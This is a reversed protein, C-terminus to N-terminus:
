IRKQSRSRIAIAVSNMVLLMVMLVLIAGAAAETFEPNPRTTWDFIQLPLVMYRDELNTPLFNVLGVAGVVILPATEGIARSLALIVGTLMGPLANPLVVRWITQWRTAGLALSGERFSPPVAKLAEQSVLIVIPLILLSMTLAGTLVSRGLGFGAVFLALGLMGYVISPVGSLNAINVQVFDTFRNKKRVFEELYVAAAVGVPVVIVATLVMVLLSGLLAPLIGATKPRLESPMSTLFGWNVRAIGDLTLKGLLVVLVGIALVAAGYCLWGFLANALKRRRLLGPDIHLRGGSM